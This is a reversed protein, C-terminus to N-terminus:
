RRGGSRGGRDDDKSRDDSKPPPRQQPQPSPAARSQPQQSPAARPQPPSPPPEASRQPHVANNQPRQIQPPQQQPQPRQAQPPQPRQQPPPQFRPAPERQLRNQNQGINAPPTASRVAPAANGPATPPASTGSAPAGSPTRRGNAPGPQPAAAPRNGGMMPSSVASPAQSRPAPGRPAGPRPLPAAAPKASAPPATNARPQPAVMQANNLAGPPLRNGDTFRPAKGRASQNGLGGSPAASIAGPLRQYRYGNSSPPRNDGRNLRGLYNSSARYGPQWYEGPALPFWAAAPLGVGVSLGWQAGGSNGGGVFGVLAPAYVPRRAVPGPVWAWRPGIQAWRGYHFPAFGWPAADVWTWGWPEVWTWNGDRYPAWDDAAATPYWVPGYTPDQDWQGYSDLMQYGPMDRSVYNASVSQDEQADRAAAWQDLTDPLDVPGRRVMALTRGSFTAQQGDIVPVSQGAEGYVTAAGARVAVRTAGAGPDVDVRYEGPQNAVVALQPTDIEVREGPQLDRVRVSLAGETLAVQATADDLLTVDLSTKGYLRLVTWGGHLETRSGPDTAIATGTTVPWNLAAQAWDSEGPSAIWAGGDQASIYAVRGPPDFSQQQPPPQQQPLQACGFLPVAALLASGLLRRWFFSSITTTM